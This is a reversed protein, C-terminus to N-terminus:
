RGALAVGRVVSTDTSDSVQLYRNLWGDTVRKDGPAATEMYDQADFHSRTPDPSGVAHAIALERRPSLEHLRALEPHLAFMGDLDVGGEPAGPPPIGIGPRETYYESAGYPVVMNLADVAGRQFVVVLVRPQAQAVATRLRFRAPVVLGAAAASGGRLLQRRTITPNLM